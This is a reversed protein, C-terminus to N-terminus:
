QYPDRYRQDERLDVRRVPGGAIRTAPIRASTVAWRSVDALDKTRDCSEPRVFALLAYLAFASVLWGALALVLALYPELHGFAAEGIMAFVVLAAGGLVAGIANRDAQRTGEQEQILTLSAPLISPFALFAGGFRPSVTLGIIGAIVSIAAGLAFRILYERPRVQRLKGPQVAPMVPSKPRDHNVLM